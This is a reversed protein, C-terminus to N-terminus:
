LRAARPPCNQRLVLSRSSPPRCPSASTESSAALRAACLSGAAQSSRRAFPIVRLWNRGQDKQAKPLLVEDVVEGHRGLAKAAEPLVWVGADTKACAEREAWIERAWSVRDKPLMDDSRGKRGRREPMASEKAGAELYFMRHVSNLPTRLAALAGGPCDARLCSRCLPSAPTSLVRWHLALVRIAHLFSPNLPARPRFRVV